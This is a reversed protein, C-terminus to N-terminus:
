QSPIFFHMFNSILKSTYKFEVGQSRQFQSGAKVSCTYRGSDDPTALDVDIELTHSHKRFSSLDITRFHHQVQSQPEDLRTTNDGEAKWIVISNKEWTIYKYVDPPLREWSCRMLINETYTNVELPM